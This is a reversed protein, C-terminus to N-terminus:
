VKSCLKLSVKYTSVGRLFFYNSVMGLDCIGKSYIVNGELEVSLSYNEGPRLILSYLDEVAMDLNSCASSGCEIILDELTKDTDGINVKMSAKLVNEAEISTREDVYSGTDSINSFGLYFLGMFILIVVIVLLGIVESQARTNRLAVM